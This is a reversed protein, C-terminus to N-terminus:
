RGYKRNFEDSKRKREMAAYKDSVAQRTVGLKAAIREWSVGEAHAQLVLDDLEYDTMASLNHKEEISGLLAEQKSNMEKPM